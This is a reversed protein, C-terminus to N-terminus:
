YLPYCMLARGTGCNLPFPRASVHRLSTQIPILRLCLPSVLGLHLLVSNASQLISYSLSLLFYHFSPRLFPTAVLSVFHNLFLSLSLPVHLLYVFITTTARLGPLICLLTGSSQTITFPSAVSKLPLQSFFLLLASM